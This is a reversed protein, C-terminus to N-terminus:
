ELSPTIIKIDSSKGQAKGRIMTEQYPDNWTHEGFRM